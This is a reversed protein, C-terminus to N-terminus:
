EHDKNEKKIFKYIQPVLEDLIDLNNNAKERIRDAKKIEDSILIEFRDLIYDFRRKIEKTEDESLEINEFIYKKLHAISLIINREENNM